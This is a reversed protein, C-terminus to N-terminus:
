FLTYIGSISIKYFNSVLFLMLPIPIAIAVRLAEDGMEQNPCRVLKMDGVTGDVEIVAEIIVRSEIKNEKCKAPYIIHSRIYEPLAKDGGIYHPCDNYDQAFTSWGLLM